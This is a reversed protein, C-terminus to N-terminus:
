QRYKAPLKSPRFVRKARPELVRQVILRRIFKTTLNIDLGIDKSIQEITWDLDRLEIIRGNWKKFLDESEERTLYKRPPKTKPKEEKPRLNNARIYISVLAVPISLTAATAEDTLGNGVHQPIREKMMERRAREDPTVERRTPRRPTQRYFSGGTLERSMKRQFDDHSSSVIDKIM